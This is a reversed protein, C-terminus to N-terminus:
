CILAISAGQGPGRANSWFLNVSGHGIYQALVSPQPEGSPATDSPVAIVACAGSRRPLKGRWAVTLESSPGVCDVPLIHARPSSAVLKCNDNTVAWARVYGGILHRNLAAPTVSGNPLNAAAYGTGGLAVFLALYAILNHRAHDLIRRM